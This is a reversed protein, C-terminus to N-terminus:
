AHVDPPEFVLTLHDLGHESEGYVRTALGDRGSGTTCTNRHFVFAKFADVSLKNETERSLEVNGAKGNERSDPLVDEGALVQLNPNRTKHNSGM